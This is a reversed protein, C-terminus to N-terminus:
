CGEHVYALNQTTRVLIKLRIQWDLKFDIREEACGALVLTLNVPWKIENGMCLLFFM